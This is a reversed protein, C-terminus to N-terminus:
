EYEFAGFDEFCNDFVACMQGVTEPGVRFHLEERDNVRRLECTFQPDTNLTYVTTSGQPQSLFADEIANRIARDGTLTIDVCPDVKSCAMNLNAGNIELAYSASSADEQTEYANCNTYLYDLLEDAVERSGICPSNTDM